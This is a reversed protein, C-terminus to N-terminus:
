IRKSLEEYGLECVLQKLIMAFGESVDHTMAWKAARAIEDESPKLHLLDEIHYGGRDASAFLKFFIQDLRDIYHVTLHSGYQKSHLRKALGEPLGMQFLGGKGQSPGNNLWDDSLGLDEAVENSAKILDEPLPDPSQLKGSCVLAVVDVDKTTRTVLGSWILSTGGCVVIEIPSSNNERLRYDLLGFIKDLNDRKLLHDNNTKNTTTM